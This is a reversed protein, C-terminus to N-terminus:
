ERNVSMTQDVWMRSPVGEVAAGGNTAIAKFNGEGVEVSYTFPGRSNQVMSLNGGSRLDDLSAYKGNLAMYGREANAINLLDNKVGVLDITARPNATAGEVGAPSVSKVQKMYLYGGIAVAILLAVFGAARGM